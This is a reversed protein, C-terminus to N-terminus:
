LVRRGGMPGEQEGWPVWRVGIPGEQEGMLGEKGGM